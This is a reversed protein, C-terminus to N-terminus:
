RSARRSAPCTLRRKKSINLSGHEAFTEALDLLWRQRRWALLYVELCGRLELKGSTRVELFFDGLKNRVTPLDRNSGSREGEVEREPHLVGLRLARWLKALQQREDCRIYLRDLVSVKTRQQIRKKSDAYGGGKYKRHLLLNVGATM